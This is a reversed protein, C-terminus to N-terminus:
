ASYYFINTFHFATDVQTIARYQQCYRRSGEMQEDTMRSAFLPGIDIECFCFTSHNTQVPTDIADHAMGNM